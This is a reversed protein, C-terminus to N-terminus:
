LLIEIPLHIKWPESASGKPKTLCKAALCIILISYRLSLKAKTARGSLHKYYLYVLLKSLSAMVLASKFSFLLFSPRTVILYIWLLNAEIDILRPQCSTAITICSFRNRSNQWLDAHLLALVSSALSILHCSNQSM